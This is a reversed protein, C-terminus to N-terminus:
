DVPGGKVPTELRVRVIHWRAALLRVEALRMLWEASEPLPGFRDRMEQRFDALKHLSRVRALRRYVEIRQRQGQVYDRPLFAKWPLDLNIELPTKLPENKARRVANELMECYLEYGVAAIHGSQQTGLINGAGCLPWM